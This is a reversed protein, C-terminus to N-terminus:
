ACQVLYIQVNTKLLHCKYLLVSPTTMTITRFREHSVVAAAVTCCQPRLLLLAGAGETAKASLLPASAAIFRRYIISQHIANRLPVMATAVTCCQSWLLLLAGAGETAKAPLLPASAAISRRHIFSQHIASRLPVVAAAVACCQPRLLLLAGAGETAKAPLLPASAGISRRHITSQRIANRLPLRLPINAHVVLLLSLPRRRLYVTM